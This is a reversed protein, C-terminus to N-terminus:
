RRGGEDGVDILLGMSPGSGEPYNGYTAVLQGTRPHVAIQRLFAMRRPLPYVTVAGSVPNLRYIADSNATAVWVTKRREDWTVSYPASASDPLDYTRLLAGTAMDISTVQGKGFMAVWLHGANDRAMRRPGAGEPFKVLKVVANTKTDFCGVYGNVQSYWAYRGDASLVTSYILHNIPSLGEIHNTDHFRVEGTDPNLSGMQNTGVLTVWIRGASDRALHGRSDISMDHVIAAGALSADKALNTPRLTWLKWSETKPDFRGFQDNDVMSVWLNGADDPVITHPGTSGKYDVPYWKTAGTAPDVRVIQNRRVDTGWLFPAVPSPVLERVLAESPFAFERIKTHATVGLPAGWSYDDPSLQDMAGYFNTALYNAVIEGQRESFFNLDANIATPWDIADLNMASELPLVAYHKTRMYKVITRWAEHRVVKRWEDLALRDGEPGNRVAEIKAAYERMKPSGTQHCSSCSAITINRADGAAARGFWASAPAQQAINAVPEMYFVDAKQHEPLQVQHYGLKEVSLTAGQPLAKEAAETFSFKGEDDTFVTVFSPGSSGKPMTLTVTAQTVPLGDNVGLVKGIFQASAPTGLAIVGLGLFLRKRINAM